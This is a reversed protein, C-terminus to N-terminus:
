KTHKYFILLSLLASENECGEKIMNVLPAQYKQGHSYIAIVLIILVSTNEAAFFDTIDIKQQLTDTHFILKYKWVNIKHNITIIWHSKQRVICM